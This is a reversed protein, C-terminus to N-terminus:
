CGREVATHALADVIADLGIGCARAARALLSGDAFSCSFDIDIVHARAGDWLLDVRGYDRGGCALYADIAAREIESRIGQADEPNASLSSPRVPIHLAPGEESELRAASGYRPADTATVEIPPLVQLDQEDGLIVVCVENGEVWEQFLVESDHDLAARVAHVLGDASEVKGLGNAGMGCAPKVCLPFGGPIRQAVLDLADIAGLDDIAAASLAVAAPTHADGFGDRASEELRRALHSKDAATRVAASPSGVHPIELFELLERLAADQGACRTVFAADPREERLKAALDHACVLEVVTHGAKELGQRIRKGSADTDAATVVAIKYAM